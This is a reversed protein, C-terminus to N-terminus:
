MVFQHFETPMLPVDLVDASVSDWRIFCFGNDAARDLGVWPFQVVVLPQNPALSPTSTKQLYDEYEVLIFRDEDDM